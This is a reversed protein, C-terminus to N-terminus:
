PQSANVSTYLDCMSGQHDKPRYRVGSVMDLHVVVDRGRVAQLVYDGSRQEQEMITIINNDLM